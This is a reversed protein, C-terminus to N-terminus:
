QERDGKIASEIVDPLDEVYVDSQRYHYRGSEPLNYDIIWGTVTYTDPGEDYHIDVNVKQNTARRFLLRLTLPDYQYIKGRGNSMSELLLHPALAKVQSGITVVIDSIQSM